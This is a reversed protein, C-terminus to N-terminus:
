HAFASADDDPSFPPLGELLPTIEVGLYASAAEDSSFVEAEHVEGTHRGYIMSLATAKTDEVLIAWRGFILQHHTIYEGIRAMDDRELLLKAQRMDTVGDLKSSFDRNEAIEEYWHILDDYTVEGRFRVTMVGITKNIQYEIM